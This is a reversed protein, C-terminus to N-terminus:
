NVTPRATVETASGRAAQNRGSAAVTRASRDAHMTGRGVRFHESAALPRASSLGNTLDGGFGEAGRLVRGYDVDGERQQM